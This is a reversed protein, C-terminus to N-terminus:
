FLQTNESLKKICNDSHNIKKNILYINIHKILRNTRKM